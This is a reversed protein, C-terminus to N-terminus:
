FIALPILLVWCFTMLQDFRLRPFTWRIWMIVFLIAYTKLFFWVPGPLVPGPTPSESQRRDAFRSPPSNSSVELGRPPSPARRTSGTQTSDGPRSSSGGAAATPSARIGRVVSTTSSLAATRSTIM